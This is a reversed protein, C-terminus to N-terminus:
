PRANYDNDDPLQVTKHFDFVLDYEGKGGDRRCRHNQGSKHDAVALVVAMALAMAVAVATAAAAAAGPM